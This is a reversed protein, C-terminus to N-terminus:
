VRSLEVERPDRLYPRLYNWAESSPVGAQIYEPIFSRDYYTQTSQYKSMQVPIMMAQTDPDYGDLLKYAVLYTANKIDSPVNDDSTESVILTVTNTYTNSRPFQLVQGENAKYGAFNLRDIIQTSMTLAKIKDANSSNTWKRVNLRQSFFLDAQQVSGYYSISIADAPTTGDDDVVIFTDGFSEATAAGKYRTRIVDGIALSLGSATLTGTYRGYGQSVLVSIGNDSFGGANVLTQPQGGAESLAPSQNDTLLVDFNVTATGGVGITRM